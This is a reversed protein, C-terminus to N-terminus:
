VSVVGGAGQEDAAPVDRWRGPRELSLHEAEKTWSANAWAACFRRSHDCGSARVNRDVYDVLDSVSQQDLTFSM